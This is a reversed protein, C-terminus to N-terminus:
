KSRLMIINDVAYNAVKYGREDESRDYNLLMPSKLSETIMWLETCHEFRSEIGMPINAHQRTAAETKPQGCDLQDMYFGSLGIKLSHGRFVFKRKLPTATKISKCM